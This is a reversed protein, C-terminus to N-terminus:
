RSFHIWGEGQHSPAFCEPYLIEALIHASDSLRPGSRNFYADGDTIYVQDQKVAKLEQWGEHQQLHDMESLTQKIPYGCPMVILYDPDAQQIESWSLTPSHKGPESLVPEGGAAEVLEPIWNGSTMFPDLWELCCVKPREKSPPITDELGLIDRKCQEVLKLGEDARDIAVAIEMFGTYVDDMSQPSVSVVETKDGLWGEVAETVEKLSVACRECQDQTLIIDPQLRRLQDTKVQFVSLGHQVLTQVRTDIERSTGEPPFGPQTCVPLHTISPPFNCEHSRGVLLSSAGLAAVVETAAPLLSVVTPDNPHDAAESM